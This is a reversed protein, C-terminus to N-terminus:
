VAMEVRIGAVKLAESLKKFGFIPFNQQLNHKRNGVGQHFNDSHCKLYVTENKFLLPIKKKYNKRSSFPVWQIELPQDPKAYLLQHEQFKRLWM